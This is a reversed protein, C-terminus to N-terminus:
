YQYQVMLMFLHILMCLMLYPVYLKGLELKENNSFGSWSLYDAVCTATTMVASVAFVLLHLPIKPDDAIYKARAAKSASGNYSTSRLLAGIAWLSLPVHYLAEIWTYFTFWSPPNIFFQDRYTTIYFSRLSHM